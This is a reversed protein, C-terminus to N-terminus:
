NLACFINRKAAFCASRMIVGGPEGSLISVQFHMACFRYDDRQAQDTKSSCRGVCRRRLSADFSFAISLKMM